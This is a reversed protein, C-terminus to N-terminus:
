FMHEGTLLQQLNVPPHHPPISFGRVAVERGPERSWADLATQLNVHDFVPLTRSVVSRDTAAEGLYGTVLATVENRQTGHDRHVWELFSRFAAAFEHAELQSFREM